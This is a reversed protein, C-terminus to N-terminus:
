LAKAMAEAEDFALWTQDYGAIGFATECHLNVKDLAERHVSDSVRNAIGLLGSTIANEHQELPITQAMGCSILDSTVAVLLYVALGRVCALPTTTGSDGLARSRGALRWYAPM